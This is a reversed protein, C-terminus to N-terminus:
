MNTIRVLVVGRSYTAGMNWVIILLTILNLSMEQNLRYVTWCWQFIKLTKLFCMFRCTVSFLSLNGNHTIGFYYQSHPFGKSFWTPSSLFHLPSPHPSSHSSSSFSLASISNLLSLSSSHQPSLLDSRFAHSSFSHNSSTFLSFILENTENTRRFYRLIFTMPPFDPFYSLVVNTTRALPSWNWCVYRHDVM